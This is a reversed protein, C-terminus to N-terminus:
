LTQDNQTPVLELREKNNLSFFLPSIVLGNRRASIGGQKRELAQRVM